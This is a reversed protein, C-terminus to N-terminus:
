ETFSHCSIASHFLLHVLPEAHQSNLVHQSTRSVSTEVGARVTVIEIAMLWTVKGRQINTEEEAFILIIYKRSLSKM